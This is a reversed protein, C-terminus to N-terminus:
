SSSDCSSTTCWTGPSSRRVVGDTYNAGYNAVDVACAAIVSDLLKNSGAILEDAHAVLAPPPAYDEDRNAVFGHGALSALAQNAEDNSIGLKEVIESTHIDRDDRHAQALLTLVQEETETLDPELAKEPLNAVFGHEVLTAMARDVEEISLGLKEAIESDRLGRGAQLADALEKMVRVENETLDPSKDDSM